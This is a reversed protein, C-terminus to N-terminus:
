NVEILPGITVITIVSTFIYKIKIFICEYKSIAKLRILLIIFIVFELINFVVNDSELPSEYHWMRNQGQVNYKNKEPINNNEKKNMKIKMFNINKLEYRICDYEKSIDDSKEKEREMGNTHTFNTKFKSLKFSQKLEVERNGIGFECTNLEIKNFHQIVNSPICKTNNSKMCWANCIPDECRYYKGKNIKIQNIKEDDLIIKSPFTSYISENTEANNNKSLYKELITKNIIEYPSYILSGSAGAYNNEFITDNLFLAGGFYKAQNNSFTNNSM